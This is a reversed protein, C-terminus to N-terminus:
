YKSHIINNQQSQLAISCSLFSAKQILDPLLSFVGGVGLTDYLVCNPLSPGSDIWDVRIDQHDDPEPLSEWGDRGAIRRSLVM